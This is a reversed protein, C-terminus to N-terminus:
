FRAEQRAIVTDGDFAALGKDKLEARALAIAPAAASQRDAAVFRTTYFSVNERRRRFWRRSVRAVNSGELRVRFKRM